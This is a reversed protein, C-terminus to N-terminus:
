SQSAVSPVRAAGGCKGCGVSERHHWLCSPASEEGKDGRGGDEMAPPRLLSSGARERFVSGDVRAAQTKGRTTPPTDLLNRRKFPAPSTIFGRNVCLAHSTRHATQCRTLISAIKIRRTTLISLM